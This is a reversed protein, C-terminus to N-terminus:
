LLRGPGLFGVLCAAAQMGSDVGATFHWAVAVALLRNMKPWLPNNGSFSAACQKGAAGYREGATTLLHVFEISLRSLVGFNFCEDWEDICAKHMSRAVTGLAKMNRDFSNATVNLNKDATVAKSVAERQLRTTVAIGAAATWVAPDVRAVQTGISGMRLASASHYALLSAAIM